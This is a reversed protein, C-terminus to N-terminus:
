STAPTPGERPTAFESRRDARPLGLTTGEEGSRPGGPEPPGRRPAHTEAALRVVGYKFLAAELSSEPYRGFRAEDTGSM